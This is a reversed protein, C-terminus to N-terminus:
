PWTRRAERCISEASLTDSGTCHILPFIVSVVVPVWSRMGLMEEVKTGDVTHGSKYMYDRAKIINNKIYVRLKNTRSKMDQFLGLSAFISKPTLCCPCPCTGM